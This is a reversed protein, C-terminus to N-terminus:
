CRAREGPTGAPSRRRPRRSPLRTWAAAAAGTALATHRVARQELLALRTPEFARHLGGLFELAAPTLVEDQRDLRPGHVEAAQAPPISTM